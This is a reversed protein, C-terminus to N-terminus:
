RALLVISLMAMFIALLQLLNIKEKLFIRALILTVIPYMATITVITAVPGLQIAYYYLMASFVAFGSTCAIIAIGKKDKELRWKLFFLVPLAVLMNGIAGYFLVSEMSLSQLAMKPLFTSIGWLVLTGLSLLLLNNKSKLKIMM